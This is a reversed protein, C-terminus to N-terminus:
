HRAGERDYPGHLRLLRHTNHKATLCIVFLSAYFRDSVGSVCGPSCRRLILISIDWPTKKKYVHFLLFYMLPLTPAILFVVCVAPWGGRGDRSM